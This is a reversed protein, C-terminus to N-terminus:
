AELAVLTRPQGRPGVLALLEGGARGIPELPAGVAALRELEGAATVCVLRREGGSECVLWLGGGTALAHEVAGDGSRVLALEDGALRLAEWRSQRAAVVWPGDADAALAVSVRVGAPWSALEADGLVLRWPAGGAGTLTAVAAGAGPAQAAVWPPGDSKTAVAEVGAAGAEGVLQAARGGRGRAPIAFLLREGHVTWRARPPAPRPGRRGARAPAALGLGLREEATKRVARDAVALTTLRLVQGDGAAAIWATRGGASALLPRAVTAVQRLDASFVAAEEASAAVIAAPTAALATVDSGAIGHAGSVRGRADSRVVRQHADHRVVAVVDDGAVIARAVDDLVTRTAARPV